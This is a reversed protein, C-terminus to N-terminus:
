SRASDDSSSTSPSTCPRPCACSCAKTASSTISPPFPLTVDVPELSGEGCVAITTVNSIQTQGQFEGATGNVWILEGLSVSDNNGNFVFIGDSTTPDGDGYQDQIYFGRLNPSPGEYDGIVIGQTSVVQGPIPTSPGSGQIEYIPTYDLICVDAVSFSWIYDAEMHDPPDLLDQDTVQSAHVQVTCSELSTFEGLIELLFTTPGGSVQPNHNGSLSCSIDVWPDIVDVPESFTITLNASLPVDDADPAPYTAAVEPAEDVYSTNRPFPPGAEFDAANDDTDQFGGWKRLAATTNNLLPAAGSGEYFNATGYGVLDIIDAMQEPSCPTSGGNCGLSGLISALAVKGSGAAMNIPTPDILDPTPLPVGNTGRGEQILTTNDRNYSSMPCSPSSVRMLEL